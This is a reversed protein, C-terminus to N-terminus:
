GKQRILEEERRAKKGWLFVARFLSVLLFLFIFLIPYYLMPHKFFGDDDKLLSPKNILVVADQSLAIKARVKENERELNFKTQLMGTFDKDIVLANTKTAADDSIYSEIVENIQEITKNSAMERGKMNALSVKKFEELIQNTNLYELLKTIAATTANESLMLTVNHYLYQPIFTESVTIKRNFELKDFLIEFNRNNAEYKELIDNFNVIPEIEISNILSEDKWLGIKKLFVSDNDKIKEELEDLTNYVYNGLDYNIRIMLQATRNEAQNIKVFYGYVLGIIILSLVIIWNKLIFFVINFFFLAMQKFFKGIGYFIDNMDLDEKINRNEM